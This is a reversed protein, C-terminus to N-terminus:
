TVVEPNGRQTITACTTKTWETWTRIGAPYGNVRKGKRISKGSENETNRGHYDPLPIQRPGPVCVLGNGSTKLRLPM